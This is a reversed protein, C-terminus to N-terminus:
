GTARFGNGDGADTPTRGHEPSRRGRWRRGGRCPGGPRPDRRRPRQTRGSWGSSSRGTERVWRSASSAFIVASRSLAVISDLAPLEEDVVAALGADTHDHSARAGPTRSWSTVSARAFRSRPPMLGREEVLAGLLVEADAEGPGGLFQVGQYARLTRRVQAHRFSRGHLDPCIAISTSSETSFIM